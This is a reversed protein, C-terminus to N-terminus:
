DDFQEENKKDVFERKGKEVWIPLQKALTSFGISPVYRKKTRRKKSPQSSLPITHLARISLSIKQTYEDIDIIKARIKEGVRVFDRLNDMYGHKCESIHVLGQVDNDLLVFVGYAQIGTVTGEVIDGIKYASM